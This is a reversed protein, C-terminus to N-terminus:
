DARGREAVRGVGGRRQPRRVVEQVIRVIVVVVELERRRLDHLELRLVRIYQLGHLVRERRHLLGLRAQELDARQLHLQDRM